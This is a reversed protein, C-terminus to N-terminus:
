GNLESYFDELLKPWARINWNKAAEKWWHERWCIVVTLPGGLTLFIELLKLDIQGVM